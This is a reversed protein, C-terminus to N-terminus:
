RSLFLKNVKNLNSKNSKIENRIKSRNIKTLLNKGKLYKKHTFKENIFYTNRGRLLSKYLFMSKFGIIIDFSNLSEKESLNDIIINNKKMHFNITKNDKPHPRFFIKHKPFRYSLLKLLDDLFNKNKKISIFMSNFNNKTDPESVLLIKHSYIKKNMKIKNLEPHGIVFTNEFNNKLKKKQISNIVGIFIDKNKNEILKFRSLNKWSDLFTFIYINKISLLNYNSQDIKHQAFTCYIYKIKFKQIFDNFYLKTINKNIKIIKYNKIVSIINKKQSKVNENIIIYFNIKSFKIYSLYNILYNTSGLDQFYILVNVKSLKKM